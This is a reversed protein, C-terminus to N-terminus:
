NREKEGTRIFDCYTFCIYYSRLLHSSLIWPNDRGRKSGVQATDASDNPESPHLKSAVLWLGVEKNLVSCSVGVLPSLVEGLGWLKRLPLCWSLFKPRKM